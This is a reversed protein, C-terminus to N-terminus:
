LHDHGDGHLGRVAVFVAGPEVQRSDHAFWSFTARAGLSVIEGGTSELLLDLPIM